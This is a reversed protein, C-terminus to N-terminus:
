IMSPLHPYSPPMANLMPHLPSFKERRFFSKKHNRMWEMKQYMFKLVQAQSKVTFNYLLTFFISVKM